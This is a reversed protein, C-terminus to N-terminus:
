RAFPASKEANWLVRFNRAFPPMVVDNFWDGQWGTRAITAELLGGFGLWSEWVEIRQKDLLVFCLVAEDWTGMDLKYAYIHTVEDWGVYRVLVGSDEAVAFGAEVVKVTSKPPNVLHRHWSALRQYWRLKAM